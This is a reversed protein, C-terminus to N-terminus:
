RTGHPSGPRGGGDARDGGQVRQQLAHNSARNPADKLRDYGTNFPLDLIGKEVLPMVATGVILKSVSGM